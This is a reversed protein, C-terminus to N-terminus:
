VVKMKSSETWLYAPIPEHLEINMPKSGYHKKLDGKGIFVYGNTNNFENM